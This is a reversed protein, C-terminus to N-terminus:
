GICGIPQPADRARRTARRVDAGLIEHRSEILEAFPPRSRALRPHRAGRGPSASAPHEHLSRLANAVLAQCDLARSRIENVLARSRPAMAAEANPAPNPPAHPRHDAIFRRVREHLLPAGVVLGRKWIARRARHITVLGASGRAPAMLAVYSAASRGKAFRKVGASLCCWGSSCEAIRRGLARRGSWRCHPRRFRCIRLQSRHPDFPGDNARRSTARGLIGVVIM